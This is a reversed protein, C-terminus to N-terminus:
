LICLVPVMAAVRSSPVLYKFLDLDLADLLDLLEFREYGGLLPLGDDRLLLLLLYALLL